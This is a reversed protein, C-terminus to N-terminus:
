PQFAVGFESAKGALRKDRTWLKCDRDNVATGLLHADILGLGTGSIQHLTIFNLLAADELKQAQPLMNFLQIVSNRNRISGLAIEATVFAHQLVCGQSLLLVLDSNTSRFHDIWVSSDVLIM